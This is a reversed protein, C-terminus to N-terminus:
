FCKIGMFERRWEKTYSYKREKLIKLAISESEGVMKEFNLFKSLERKLDKLGFEIPNLDPSYPPFYIFYVSLKEAHFKVIKAHHIKANDLIICIPRDLNNKRILDMFFIMDEAKSRDSLMAVDNGNLAM